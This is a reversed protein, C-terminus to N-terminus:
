HAMRALVSHVLAIYSFILDYFWPVPGDCETVYDICHVTGPNHLLIDWYPPPAPAALLLDYLGQLSNYLNSKYGSHYLFTSSSKLLSM